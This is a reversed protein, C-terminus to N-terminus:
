SVGGKQCLREFEEKFDPLKPLLLRDLERQVQKAPKSNLDDEFMEKVKEASEYSAYREKESRTSRQVHALAERDSESEYDDPSVNLVPDFVKRNLFDVLKQRTDHSSM